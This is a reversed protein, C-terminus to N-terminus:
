GAPRVPSSAAVLRDGTVVIDPRVAAVAARLLPNQIVGGRDCGPPTAADLLPKGVELMDIVPVMLWAIGGKSGAAIMGRLGTDDTALFLDYFRLEGASPVLMMGACQSDASLSQARKQIADSQEPTVAGRKVTTVTIM